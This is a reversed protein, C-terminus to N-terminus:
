GVFHKAAAVVLRRPLLRTANAMLAERASAIALRRGVEVARLGRAAIVDAAPANRFMRASAGSVAEFGTATPGPCFTTVQVGFSRCESDVAQGFSLLFAKTAAYVAM